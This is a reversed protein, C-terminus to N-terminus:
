GGPGVVGSAHFLSALAVRNSVGTRRYINALHYEITKSSVVLQSAVEKNTMGSSVLTCVAMEQSTLLRRLDASEPKPVHAREGIRDLATQAMAVFTTARIRVFRSHADTLMRAAEVPRHSDRLWSGAALRLLAEELAGGRGRVDIDLARRFHHDVAPLDHPALAATLSGRVRLAALLAVPDGRDTAIREATQLVINADGLRGTGVLGEAYLPCASAIGPELVGPTDRQAWWFDGITAMTEAVGMAQAVRMVGVGAFGISAVDNIAFAEQLAENARREASELRGTGALLSAAAANALVGLFKLGAASSLSTALEADVEALDWHGLRYRAESRHVLALVRLYLSGGDKTIRDVDTLAAVATAPRQSWLEVVGRGLVAGVAEAYPDDGIGKVDAVSDLATSLDGMQASAMARICRSLARPGAAHPDELARGAWLFAENARADNLTELALAGATRAAMARESSSRDASTQATAFARELTAIAVERRGEAIALEGLALERFATEPLGTVRDVLARAAAVQDGLILAEFQSILFEHQHAVSTALRECAAYLLAATAFDGRAGRDAAHEAVELALAQDPALTANIRHQIRETGSTVNSAALHLRAREGVPINNYVSARALPHEFQLVSGRLRLIRAADTTEIAQAVEHSSLGPLAFAALELM